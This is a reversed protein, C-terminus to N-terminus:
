TVLSLTNMNVSQFTKKKQKKNCLFDQAFDFSNDFCRQLLTSKRQQSNKSTKFM